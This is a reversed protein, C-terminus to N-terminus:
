NVGRVWKFLRNWRINSPFKRDKDFSILVFRPKGVIHDEPVFGWFRSDLSNDRNDGMMFYYDMKFTYTDAPSGNVLIEDGRVELSNGEYKEIIDRYLPLTKATLEVTAGKQPIWLPGFNDVNWPYIGTDHPFIKDDAEDQIIQAVGVVNKMAKVREYNQRTLPLYVYMNYTSNYRIDDQAVGMDRFAQASIPTGNTQVTYNYQLGPVVGLPKGNVTLESAAVRVTDGPLAVCRKVYNERKDVPRSVITYDRQVRAWGESRGLVRQYERVIDYYTENARELAVTDGAPFHFVVVDGREVHGLGKLRYYPWQIAESYSKKTKSFPMTNHVLPFSLPTNPVIPGYALKSVWLYDGVLLSKEMSSTPIVYMGFVFYKLVTVVVLAFVIAEGWSMIIRYAVDKQLMQKYKGWFLRYMYKSIYIDFIVVEGLLMWPCGTWVVALLIYVVSVVSFKVWKNSWIEKLKGM